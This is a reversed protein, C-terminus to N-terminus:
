KCLVITLLWDENVLLTLDYNIDNKIERYKWFNKLVISAGKM